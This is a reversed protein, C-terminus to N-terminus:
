LWFVNRHSGWEQPCWSRSVRYSLDCNSSYKDIFELVEVWLPRIFEVSSNCKKLVSPSKLVLNGEGNGFDVKKKFLLQRVFVDRLVLIQNGVLGPDIHGVADVHLTVGLWVAGQVALVGPVALIIVRPDRQIFHLLEVFNDEGTVDLSGTGTGRSFWATAPFTHDLLLYEWSINIMFISPFLVRINEALLVWQLSGRYYKNHIAFNEKWMINVLFQWFIPLKLFKRPCICAFHYITVGLWDYWNYTLLVELNM